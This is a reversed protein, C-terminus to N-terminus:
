PGRFAGVWFARQDEVDVLQGAAILLEGDRSAGIADVSLNPTLITAGIAAYRTECVPEGAGDFRHMWGESWADESEDRELSGGTFVEGGLAAAVGGLTWDEGADIFSDMERTWAIEGKTLAHVWFTAGPGLRSVGFYVEGGPNVSLAIPVHDHGPSEDAHPAWDGQLVGAADFSFLHADNTEYDVYEVGMAWITGDPAVAVPGGRDLSFGNAALEGSWTTAWLQAGDAAALEALWLDGDKDAVRQHGCVIPNGAPTVAVGGAGDKAGDVPGDFSAAWVEAGGPDFRGVWIDTEDGLDVTASLYVEGGPGLAVGAALQDLGEQPDIVKSWLPAGDSAFAGLWLDDDLEATLAALTGAVVVEGSPGIAIDGVVAEVEPSTAPVTAEWLLGCPIRCQSDCGDGDDLNADDCQEGDELYGNGCEPPPPDFSPPSTESGGDADLAANDTCACVLTLASAVAFGRGRWLARGRAM